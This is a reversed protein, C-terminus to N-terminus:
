DNLWKYIYGKQPTWNYNGSQFVFKNERNLNYSNFNLEVECHRQLEMKIQIDKLVKNEGEWEWIFRNDEGNNM